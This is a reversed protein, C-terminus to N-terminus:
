QTLAKDILEDLAGFQLGSLRGVEVRNRDYVIVFPLEPVRGLYRKAIVSDWDGIDIRRYALDPENQLIGMVYEDVQRCPGCWIAFFDVITAKGSVALRAVDLERGPNRITRVDKDTKELGPKKYRGQGAGVTVGYGLSSVLRQLADPTQKGTEYHISLEAKVKHFQVRRVGKAGRLVDVSHVGCSSCSIDQLSLVVHQSSAACGALVLAGFCLGLKAKSLRLLRAKSGTFFSHGDFLLLM